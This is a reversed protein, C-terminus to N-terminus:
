ARSRQAAVSPSAATTGPLAALRALSGTGVSGRLSWATVAGVVALGLAIKWTDGGTEQFPWAWLALPALWGAGLTPSAIALPAVLLLLYHVWVIPSLLLAAAIALTFLWQDRAPRPARFALALTACGLALALAKVAPLALGLSLGLAVTSWGKGQVSGALSSLLRPYDVLGSFGLAAWSALTGLGALAGTLAAARVRRTLVLWLVLPWLFLKAVIAAALVPAVVATRDRYRWAVALGLLLFPTFTGLRIAGLSTISLFVAGYCRRDRVGLLRLAAVVALSSLAVFISAAVAFPLAGFPIMAIAAPAPYPFRYVDQIAVADLAPDGARPLSDPSPYPSRGDLVDRGGQWFQHFDFAFHNGISGGIMLALLAAPLVVWLLTGGVRSGARALSHLKV